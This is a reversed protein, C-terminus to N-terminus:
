ALGIDSNPDETEKEIAALLESGSAFTRNSAPTGRGGNAMLVLWRAEQLCAVALRFADDLRDMAAYLEPSAAGASVSLAHRVGALEEREARFYAEAAECSDTADGSPDALDDILTNPARTSAEKLEECMKSLMATLLNERDECMRVIAAGIARRQSQSMRGLADPSIIDAFQGSGTREKSPSAAWPLVRGLDRIQASSNLM